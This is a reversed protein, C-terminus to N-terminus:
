RLLKVPNETCTSHQFAKLYIQDISYTRFSFNFFNPVDLKSYDSPGRPSTRLVEQPSGLDVEWPRGKIALYFCGRSTMEPSGGPRWIPVDGACDFIIKLSREPSAAPPRGQSTRPVLVQRSPFVDSFLKFGGILFLLVNLLFVLFCIGSLSNSVILM